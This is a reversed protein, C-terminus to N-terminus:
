TSLSVIKLHVLGHFNWPRKRSDHPKRALVEEGGEGEGDVKRHEM